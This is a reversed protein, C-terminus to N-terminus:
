GTPILMDWCASPHGWIRCRDVRPTGNGAVTIDPIGDNNLDGIAFGVPAPGSPFTQQPQFTGDGNGLLVGITQDTVNM